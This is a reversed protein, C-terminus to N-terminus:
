CPRVEVRVARYGWGRLTEWSEDMSSTAALILGKRTWEVSGCPGIGDHYLAWMKVPKM